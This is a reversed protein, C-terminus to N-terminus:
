QAQAPHRDRKGDDGAGTCCCPWRCVCAPPSFSSENTRAWTHALARAYQWWLMTIAITKILDTDMRSRVWEGMTGNAGKKDIQKVCWAIGSSKEIAKFASGFAGEGLKQVCDVFREAEGYPQTLFFLVADKRFVGWPEGDHIGQKSSAKPYAHQKRGGGGGTSPGESPWGPRGGGVACLLDSLNLPIKHRCVPVICRSCSPKNLRLPLLRM